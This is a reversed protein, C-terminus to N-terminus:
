ELVQAWNFTSKVKIDPHLAHHVPCASAARELSQQQRRTVKVPVDLTIDFAKIRYPGHDAHEVVRVTAGSLDLEHKAAAIAMTSVMCAGLSAAVLDSPTYADNPEGNRSIATRVTAENKVHTAHCVYPQSFEIRVENDAM